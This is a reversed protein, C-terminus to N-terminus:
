RAHRIREAMARRRHIERELDERLLDAEEEGLERAAEEVLQDLSSLPVTPRMEGRNLALWEFSVKFEAAIKQLNERKIGQGLEWNGVAGRTVGVRKALETGKIGLVDRMKRIRQGTEIDTQSPQRKM